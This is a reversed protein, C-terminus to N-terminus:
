AETFTYFMTASSDNFLNDKTSFEVKLTYTSLATLSMPNNLYTVSLPAVTCGLGSGTSVGYAMRTGLPPLENGYLTVIIEEYGAADGEGNGQINVLLTWPVVGTTITGTATGEQINNNTGGCNTSLQMNFQVYNLGSRVDSDDQVTWGYGAPIPNIGSQITTWEIKAPYQNVFWFGLRNGGFRM